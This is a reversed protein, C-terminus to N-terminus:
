LFSPRFVALSRIDDNSTERLFLSHSDCQGIGPNGDAKGDNGPEQHQVKASFAEGPKRALDGKKTGM